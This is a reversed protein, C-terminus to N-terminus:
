GESQEKPNHEGILLKRPFGTSIRDSNEIQQNCLIYQDYTYFAQELHKIKISSLSSTQQKRM